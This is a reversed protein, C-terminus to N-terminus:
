KVRGLRKLLDWSYSSATPNQELENKKEEYTKNLSEILVTFENVGRAPM